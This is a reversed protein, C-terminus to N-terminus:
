ALTVREEGPQRASRDGRPRLRIYVAPAALAGLCGTLGAISRWSVGARASPVDILWDEPRYVHGPEDEREFEILIEHRGPAPFAHVLELLGRTASLDTALPHADGTEPDRRVVSVRMPADVRTGTRMDRFRFLLRTGSEAPSLALSVAVRGDAVKEPGGHALAGPVDPLALLAAVALVRGLRQM